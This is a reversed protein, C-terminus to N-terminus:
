FKIFSLIESRPILAVQFYYKRFLIHSLMPTIQNVVSKRVGVNKYQSGDALMARVLGYSLNSVNKM